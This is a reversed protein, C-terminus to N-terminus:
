KTSPKDSGNTFDNSFVMGQPTIHGKDEQLKRRQDVVQQTLSPTNQPTQQNQQAMKKLYEEREKIISDINSKKKGIAGKIIDRENNMDVGSKIPRQMAPPEFLQSLEELTGQGIVRGEKERKEIEKPDTSILENEAVSSVVQIAVHNSGAFFLGQGKDCNLLLNKEGESLNFVKQLNDVATNSQKMLMQISSNSIIARGMDNKLFDDVDQTITTLGLYYKRARKAISYMFKASDENQMMYWAEDVIMIRRKKDKRIRTWIYDLMLYMAMPRLEEQLDRVSFVTFANNLEVTSEENFIGAGSGIIYRELRRAMNHAETESMGKLVKYLDELMPPKNNRQTVPDLTIGKERYTLMLARDLISMEVNTLSEFLIRFFGQLSLLKMRLEDDNPDGLGSLEFPNMKHGKDQSFSIYTGGVAECLDQYEKEPDVIIIQTGLMLSRVAELKVFYSKGAGAKAFVVTNANEMEFRDFIVLSRNHQNIGYMVGHDMTLESTVFPFTTALSTTDMNRTIYIKDLGLPQTSLYGQEQQLMAQKATVNIAALTSVANRTIKELTKLDKASITVYMGFHFFKETGEAISDQLQQADSLAVKISPDLAKRGEMQSYLTAELEGIKKKLKDLIVKTDVPYYFTSIRLSHEFNIIPSLWNPGVFRPYGSIFLTRYFYEGIQIHNFDVELDLPAIVDQVTLGEYKDSSRFRDSDPGTPADKEEDTETKKASGKKFSDLFKLILKTPTFDKKKIETPQAKEINALKEKNQRDLQLENYIDAVKESPNQIKSAFDDMKKVTASQFGREFKKENQPNM